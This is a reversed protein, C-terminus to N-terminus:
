RDLSMPTMYRPLSTSTPGASLTYPEGACGYVLPSIMAAGTASGCASFALTRAPTAPSTGLAIVGGDSHRNRVRARERLVPARFLLRQQSRESGRMERGAMERQNRWRRLGRDRRGRDCRGGGGLALLSLWGSRGAGDRIGPQVM